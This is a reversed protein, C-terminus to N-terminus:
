DDYLNELYNCSSANLFSDNFHVMETAQIKSFKEILKFVFNVKKKHRLFKIM